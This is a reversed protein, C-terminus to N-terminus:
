AADQATAAPTSREGVCFPCTCNERPYIDPRLDHRSVSTAEEIALVKDAPVRAGNLWKCVAPQSVGLRDALAKQSGAIEIAKQIPKM